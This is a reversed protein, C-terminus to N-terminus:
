TSRRRVRRAGAPGSGRFADWSPDAPTRPCTGYTAAHPSTPRQPWAGIVVGPCRLGRAALAECTLAAHNLTGLGARAVVVVSADLRGAVDALTSGDADFRVLLGGAGEVLVLDRGDLDRVAAAIADASVGPRGARAAATAPALPDVLRVLEHVDDVGSLRRM